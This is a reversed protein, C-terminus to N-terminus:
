GGCIWCMILMGAVGDEVGMERSVWKVVVMGMELGLEACDVREGRRGM